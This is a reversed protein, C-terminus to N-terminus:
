RNGLLMEFAATASPAFEHAVATLEKPEVIILSGETVNLSDAPVNRLVYYHGVVTAGPIETDPGVYSGLPEFKDPGAVHGTEEYM